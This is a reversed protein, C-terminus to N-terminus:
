TAIKEKCSLLMSPLDNQLNRLRNSTAAPPPRQKSQWCGVGRRIRLMPCGKLIAATLLFICTRLIRAFPCSEFGKASLFDSIPFLDPTPSVFSFRLSAGFLHKENAPRYYIVDDHLVQVTLVNSLAIGHWRVEPPSPLMPSRLLSTAQSRPWTRTPVRKASLSSSTDYRGATRRTQVHTRSCRREKSHPM